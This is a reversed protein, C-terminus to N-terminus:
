MTARVAESDCDNTRSYIHVSYAIFGYRNACHTAIPLSRAGASEFARTRTRDIERAEFQYNQATKDSRLSKSSGSFMSLQWNPWKGIMNTGEIATVTNAKEHEVHRRSSSCM